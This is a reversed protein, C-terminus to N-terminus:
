EIEKVAVKRKKRREIKPIVITLIGNELSAQIRSNDVEEPLVIERSFPGWYCEQFFYNRKEKEAPKERNGKIMVMDNEISINLNKPTIGAIVSQIVLNSDTQYIDVTLEGEEQELWKKEKIIPSNMEEDKHLLSEKKIEIKRTEKQEIKKIKNPTNKEKPKKKKKEGEKSKNKDNDANFEQLSPKDKSDRVPNIKKDKVKKEKPLLSSPDKKLELNEKIEPLSEVGMGKKLKDFFSSM